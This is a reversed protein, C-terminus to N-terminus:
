KEIEETASAADLRARSLVASTSDFCGAPSPYCSVLILVAAFECDLGVEKEGVQQQRRRTENAGM